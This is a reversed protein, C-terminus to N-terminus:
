RFPFAYSVAEETEGAVAVGPGGAFRCSLGARVAGAGAHLVAALAPLSHHECTWVFESSEGYM